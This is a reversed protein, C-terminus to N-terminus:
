LETLEFNPILRWLFFSSPWNTNTSPRVLKSDLANGGMEVMAEGEGAFVGVVMVLLLLSPLLFSSLTLMDTPLYM